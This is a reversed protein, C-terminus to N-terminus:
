KWFTSGESLWVSWILQLVRNLGYNNEYKTGSFGNSTRKPHLKILSHDDFKEQVLFDISAVNCVSPLCLKTFMNVLKSHNLERNCLHPETTGFRWSSIWVPLGRRSLRSIVIRSLNSL